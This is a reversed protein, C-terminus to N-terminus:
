KVFRVGAAGDQSVVLTCVPQIGAAACLGDWGVM